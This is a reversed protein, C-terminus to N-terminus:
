WRVSFLSFDDDDDDPDDDYDDTYALSPQPEM